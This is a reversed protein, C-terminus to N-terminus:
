GAASARREAPASEVPEVRAGALLRAGHAAAIALHLRQGSRKAGRRCGFSCAGCDGCDVANRQTPAAEWDLAAASDLILRDKAPTNPPPAFGLEEHLRDLHANSKAGHFGDLGHERVWEARLLEPPDICTTWNVLTGGGVTAGALISM